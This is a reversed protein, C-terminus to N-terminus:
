CSTHLHEHPLSDCASLQSADTPQMGANSVEQAALLVILREHLHIDAPRLAVAKSASYVALSLHGLHALIISIEEWIRANSPEQNLIEAWVELARQTPGLLPALSHLIKPRLGQLVRSQMTAPKQRSQPQKEQSTRPSVASADHSRLHVNPQLLPEDLLQLLLRQAAEAQNQVIHQLAERYQKVQLCLWPHRHHMLCHM